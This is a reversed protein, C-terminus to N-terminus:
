KKLTISKMQKTPTIQIEVTDGSALLPLSDSIEISATYITGNIEIYYISNGSKVATSIRSIIGTVTIIEEAPKNDTSSDGVGLLRRYEVEAGQLTDAVGVIQYDSVSVFSYAKVLGANDKLSVFYTPIDAVNVLIPFTAVYGKEQIQGQASEMASYEEAGNISYLRTEKTRMNILIFGINSEDSVVSTVGTYLWVDDDLALYNYGTTTKVVGRQGFVSNLYGSKLTGWNNAQEVVLDSSYVRDIWEPVDAVPYDIMEGTVADVLLIGTIDKGGLFGVKYGYYSVVWYPKGDDSIEFNVENFMKTPYKFRIHRMLDRSFLESPSYKMGEALKVLETEQTAMDIQVYYPIGDSKNTFWKITGSYQLPSVRTPMGNFNIQTYYNSVDFQSVLEVVEGIKRSGLRVATDRDVIPIQSLPIESIDTAFDRDTVTIMSQYDQANFMRASTIGIVSLAAVIALVATIVATKAHKGLKINLNIAGPTIFNSTNQAFSGIKRKGASVLYCIIYCAILLALAFWFEGSKINIPPLAFYYYVGGFVVTIIAPVVYKKFM